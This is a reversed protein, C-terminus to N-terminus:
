EKLLNENIINRYNNDTLGALRKATNEVIETHVNESLDCGVNLSLNIKRPKRIYDIRLSSVIFKQKHWVVLVEKELNTVPSHEKTTLITSSLIDYLYDTEILRNPIEKLSTPIQVLGQLTKTYTTGFQVGIISPPFAEPFVAYYAYNLVIDDDGCFIIIANPEYIDLFSEYKAQIGYRLLIEIIDNFLVFNSKPSPIPTTRSYIIDGDLVLNFTTFNDFSNPLKWVRYFVTKNELAFSDFSKGCLTTVSSRNNILGIYDAPLYTFLSDGTKTYVPLSLNPVILARLDDYRKQTSEFGEKKDNSKPNIRQKIFRLVEENLAWDKEEDKFTYTTNTNVKQLIQDIGIHMEQPNM